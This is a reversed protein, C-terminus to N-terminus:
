KGGMRSEVRANLRKRERRKQTHSQTYIDDNLVHTNRADGKLIKGMSFTSRSIVMCEAYNHICIILSQMKNSM